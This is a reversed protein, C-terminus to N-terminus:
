ALFSVNDNVVVSDQSFLADSKNPGSAGNAVTGNGGTLTRTPSSLTGDAVSIKLAVISSGSSENDLFYLARPRSDRKDITYSLVSGFFVASLYCSFINKM